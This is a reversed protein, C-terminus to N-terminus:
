ELIEAESLISEKTLYHLKDGFSVRYGIISAHGKSKHILEDGSTLLNVSEPLKAAFPLDYMYGNCQDFSVVAILVRGVGFVSHKITAGPHIILSDKTDPLSVLGYEFRSVTKAVTRDIYGKWAPGNLIDRRMGCSLILDRLLDPSASKRMFMATFYERFQKLTLPLIDLRRKNDKRDYWIGHRFTEATNTDIKVAIFLGHVPKDYKDIADSVHRRVPEGEMAEQRSSTSMSAEIVLLYDNFECYLDGRGGGATSVPLFDSDLKFGRAEYPKNVMHDIALAARWLVWELYAPTEDKPVEIRADEDDENSSGGGKEILRMYEVIEIWETRQREAYQIEDALQM